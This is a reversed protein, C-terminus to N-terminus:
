FRLLYKQHAALAALQAENIERCRLGPSQQKLWPNGAQVYVPQGAAVLDPLHQRFVEEDVLDDTQEGVALVAADALYLSITVRQWAGAGAAIRVAEAARPSTRPDATVIVLLPPHM